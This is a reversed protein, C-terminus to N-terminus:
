PMVIKKAGPSLAIGIVVQLARNQNELRASVVILWASSGLALTASTTIRRMTPFVKTYASSSVWSPAYHADVGHPASNGAIIM